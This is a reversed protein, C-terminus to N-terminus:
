PPRQCVRFWHSFLINQLGWWRLLELLVPSAKSPSSLVSSPTVESMLELSPQRPPCPNTAGWLLVAVLLHLCPSLTNRLVHQMLHCSSRLDRLWLVLSISETRGKSMSWAHQCISRQDAPNQPIQGQCHGSRNSCSGRM